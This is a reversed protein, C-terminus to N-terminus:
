VAVTPRVELRQRVEEYIGQVEPMCLTVAVAFPIEEDVVRADQDPQRQIRLQITKGDVISAVRQGDWRRSFLTGRRGQHTDPQEPSASVGLGDIDPEILWLRVSRYAKAGAIVPTLWGLTAIVEHPAARGGMSIPIPVSVTIVQDKSILGTAWVTARDDACTIAAEPDVVGYGVLRRVNDKRRAHQRRNDPGLCEQIVNVTETQWRASHALLVKLLVARQSHPLSLFPVGYARELADHIRHCTRSVLAAAASTGSTYGEAVERGAVPPVAVKLGNARGARGPQVWIGEGDSRIVTVRERGGSILVDPKVAGAYGPGLTSSPNCILLSSYPDILISSAARLNDPVNDENSAGVTLANISEAPAIITRQPMMGGVARVMAKAREESSSDEFATRTAFDTVLLPEVNNGASVVFLIGYRYSLYDLLRAWPSIRGHFRARKNGLSLNVIFVHPATADVGERMSLIAQYIVDVLLRESPFSEDAGEPSSIVPVMHVRRPLTAQLDNLDGNVILSVMATGHTRTSVPSNSELDFVDDVALHRSILGHGAMPVGDLLALIPEGLQGLAPMPLLPRSSIQEDDVDITTALAQARIHMVDDVAAISTLSLALVEAVARRPLEVLLADYHIADIRSRDLVRGGAELVKREVVGRSEAARVPSRRYVLEIELPLLENPDDEMALSLQEADFQDVRDRPGWPRLDTLLSFVHKWPTFGRPLTGTTAWANWLGALEALARADPVMLYAMGGGSDTDGALEEEDIWELGPVKRVAEVFRSVDGLVEFVLLREPAIATPDARLELGGSDRALTEAM